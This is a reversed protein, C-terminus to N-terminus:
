LCPEEMIKTAVENRVLEELASIAENGSYQEATLLIYGNINISRGENAAKFQVHVSDIADDKYRMNVGTIQINM